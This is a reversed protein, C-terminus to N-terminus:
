YRGSRATTRRARVLRGGGVKWAPRQSRNKSGKVSAKGFYYEAEAEKAAAEEPEEQYDKVVAELRRQIGKAFNSSWTHEEGSFVAKITVTRGRANVLLQRDDADYDWEFGGDPSSVENLYVEAIHLVEPPVKFADDYRDIGEARSKLEVTKRGFPYVGDGDEFASRVIEDYNADMALVLNPENEASARGCRFLAADFITDKSRVSM